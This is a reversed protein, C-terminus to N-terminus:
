FAININHYSALYKQFQCLYFGSLVIELTWIVMCVAAALIIDSLFLALELWLGFCALVSNCVDVPLYVMCEMLSQFM